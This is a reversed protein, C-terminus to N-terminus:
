DDVTYSWTHAKGVQAMLENAREEGLMAAMPFQLVIEVEKQEPPAFSKVGGDV